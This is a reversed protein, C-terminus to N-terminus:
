RQILSNGPDRGRKLLAAGRNVFEEEEKLTSRQSFVGGGRSGYYDGLYISSEAV